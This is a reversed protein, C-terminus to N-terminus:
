SLDVISRGNGRVFTSTRVDHLLVIDLLAFSKLLGRVRRNTTVNGWEIAWANFDGAIISPQHDKVNEVLEELMTCFDEYDM